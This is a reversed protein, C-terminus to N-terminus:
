YAVPFEDNWVISLAPDIDTLPLPYLDFYIRSVTIVIVTCDTKISTHPVTSSFHPEYVHCENKLNLLVSCVFCLKMSCVILIAIDNFKLGHCVSIFLVLKIKITGDFLSCYTILAWWVTLLRCFISETLGITM